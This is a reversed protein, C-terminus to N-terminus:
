WGRRSTLDDMTVTEAFNKVADLLEKPADPEHDEIPLNPGWIIEPCMERAVAEMAVYGSRTFIVAIDGRLYNAITEAAGFIYTLNSPKKQYLCETFVWAWAPDAEIAYVQKAFRAMEIGLFGVGAGIEVVTKGRLRYAFKDVERTAAYASTITLICMSKIEHRQHYSEISESGEGHEYIREIEQEPDKM